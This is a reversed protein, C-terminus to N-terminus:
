PQKSRFKALLGRVPKGTAKRAVFFLQRLHIWEGLASDLGTALNAATGILCGLLLMGVSLCFYLFPNDNRATPDRPLYWFVLAAVLMMGSLLFLVGAAMRMLWVLPGLVVRALGHLLALLFLM